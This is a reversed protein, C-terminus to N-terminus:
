PIREPDQARDAQKELANATVGAIPAAGPAAIGVGVKATALAAKEPSESLDKIRSPTPLAAALPAFGSTSGRASSHDAASAPIMPDVEPAGAAPVKSEKMATALAQAEAIAAAADERVSGQGPTSPVTASTM